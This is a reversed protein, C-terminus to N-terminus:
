LFLGFALLYMQTFFDLSIRLNISSIAKNSYLEQLTKASPSCARIKVTKIRTNLPTQVATPDVELPSQEEQVTPQEKPQPEVFSPTDDPLHIDDDVTAPFSQGKFQPPESTKRLHETSCCRTTNASWWFERGVAKTHVREAMRKKGVSFAQNASYRRTASSRVWSSRQQLVSSPVSWKM